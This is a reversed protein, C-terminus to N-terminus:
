EGNKIDGLKIDLEKDPISISDIDFDKKISCLLYEDVNEKNRASELLQRLGSITKVETRKELYTNKDKSLIGVLRLIDSENDQLYKSDKESIINTELLRKRVAVYPVMFDTMLLFMVCVLEGLMIVGPQAKIEKAHAYFASKFQDEPMLLEAAFGNTIEEEESETPDDTYGLENWVKDAVGFIHGFEHAAAFIQEGIPKDTNIYVFDEITDNVLRKIHFGRNGENELPFYVVTCYRELIGFIDDKIADNKIVCENKIEGVISKIIERENDMKM